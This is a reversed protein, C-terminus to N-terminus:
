EKVDRRWTLVIATVIFILAYVLVVLLVHNSDVKVLPQAGIDDAGGPLLTGALTNLNPGLFYATVNLWFDNHTIRNALMMIITGINDVPFWVLAVSLGFTLSRGIVAMATAMLITVGMSIMITVVYLRMDAWFAPTLSKLPDLNGTVLLVLLYTLLVNLLLGAGLLVLGVLIVTLLKMGLLQLRGVGRALLLRITGLQYELGIVRATLIILFFGSFVRLIALNGETRSYLFSLASHQLNTKIDPSTFMLLYPLCIIGLWFLLMVWTTWQRSIKLLEGRLIGLFSPTLTDHQTKAESAISTSM